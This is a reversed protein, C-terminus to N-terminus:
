VRDKAYNALLDDCFGAIGRPYFAELADLEAMKNHDLGYAQLYKKFQKSAEKSGKEQSIM